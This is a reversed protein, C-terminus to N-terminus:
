LHRAEAPVVSEAGAEKLADIFKEKENAPCSFLVAIKGDSIEPTYQKPTYSPFGSDVFLGLFSFGMLGLMTMEFTIIFGQPVPFIPQGGVLLPYLYPIGYIFFIGLFMGLIAGFLGIRSVHTIAAPRGLITHKVPIGSIVNMDDDSVGMQQLKEVGDAAPEFDEFMALLTTTEAMM